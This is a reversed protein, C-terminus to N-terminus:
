LVCMTVDSGLALQVHWLEPARDAGVRLMTPVGASLIGIRQWRSAFRRVRVVTARDHAILLLGAPPLTLVEAAEYEGTGSGSAPAGVRRCERRSGGALARLAVGHIAILETDAAERADEPAAAIQSPTDAPTGYAREARFYPGAVVVPFPFNPVLSVYDPRIVGRTIDMAGLEARTLRGEDRLYRAGSRLPALNSWVAATTGVVLLVCVARRIHVGRALEVALLVVFLGGVYLYRSAWAEETGIFARSMATLVWFSGVMTLLGLVRAPARGLKVLRWILM